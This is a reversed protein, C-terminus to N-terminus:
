APPRTRVVRGPPCYRCVQPHWGPGTHVWRALEPAPFLVGYGIHRYAGGATYVVRLDLTSHMDFVPEAFHLFGIVTGQCDPGAGILDAHWWVATGTVRVKGYPARLSGGCGLSQLIVTNSNAIPFGNPHARLERSLARMFDAPCRPGGAGCAHAVAVRVLGRALPVVTPQAPSSRRPTSGHTCGATLCLAVLM